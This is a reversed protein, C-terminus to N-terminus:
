VPPSNLCTRGSADAEDYCRQVGVADECCYPFDVSCDDSIDCQTGAGGPVCVKKNNGGGGTSRCIFGANFDDCYDDADKNGVDTAECSIFCLLLGTSEFPGCVHATDVPCVGEVTCCDADSQCQHTCYGGEVRDLCQTDGPLPDNALIEVFCDDNVECQEGTNGSLGGGDDQPPPPDDGCSVAVLFSLGLGIAISFHRRM